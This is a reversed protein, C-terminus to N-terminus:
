PLSEKLSKPLWYKWKYFSQLFPVAVIEDDFGLKRYVLMEIDTVQVSDLLKNNVVVGYKKALSVTNDIYLNELENFYLGKEILEKVEGYTKTTSNSNEAVIKYYIEKSENESTKVSDLFSYRYYSALFSEKWKKVESIIEKSNQLGRLYGERILIEEFIYNKINRRLAKDIGEKIKNDSNIGNLEINLLYTELSIPSIEFKIFDSLLEERSFKSKIVRVRYEDLQYKNINKNLFSDGSEKFIEFIYNSLMTSLKRDSYITNGKVFKEYFNDYFVKAKRAFLIEKVSKTSTEISTNELQIHEVRKIYYIVWGIKTIIPETFRNMNLSFLKNELEEDMQGFIVPIGNKQQNLEGRGSLLSDFPKGSILKAHLMKIESENESFLFNMIRKEDIREIGVKIETDTIKVKSEIEIKYLKDKVLKREINKVSNYVYPITDMSLSIAELAWLKEAIISYLFNVKTSDFDTKVKPTFEFRQKFEEVSLELDGITALNQTQAIGIVNLLLFSVILTYIKFKM